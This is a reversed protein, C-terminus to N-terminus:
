RGSSTGGERNKETTDGSTEPKEESDNKRWKQKTRRTIYLNRCRHVLVLATGRFGARAAIAALAPHVATSASYTHTVPVHKGHAGLGFLSIRVHCVCRTGANHNTITKQYLKKYYDMTSKKEHHMTSQADPMRATRNRRIKGM